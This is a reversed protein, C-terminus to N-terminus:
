LLFFFVKKGRPKVVLWTVDAPLKKQKEGNRTSYFTQRYQSVNKLTLNEPKLSLEETEHIYIIYEKTASFKRQCNM